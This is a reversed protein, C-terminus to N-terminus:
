ETVRTLQKKNIELHSEVFCLNHFTLILLQFLLSIKGARILNATPIIESVSMTRITKNKVIFDDNYKNKITKKILFNM